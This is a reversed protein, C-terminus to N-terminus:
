KFYKKRFSFIKIWYIIFFIFALVAVISNAFYSARSATQYIMHSIHFFLNISLCVTIFLGIMKLMGASDTAAKNESVTNRLGHPIGFPLMLWSFVIGLMPILQMWIFWNPFIRKEIPVNQMTKKLSILFLIYIALFVFSILFVFCDTMALHQQTLTSESM